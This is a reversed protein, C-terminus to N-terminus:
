GDRRWLHEPNHAVIEELVMEAEARGNAWSVKRVQFPQGITEETLDPFEGGPPIPALDPLLVIAAVVYAVGPM